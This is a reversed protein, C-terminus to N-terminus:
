KSTKEAKEKINYESKARAEAEARDRKGREGEAKSRIKAAAEVAARQVTNAKERVRAESEAREM